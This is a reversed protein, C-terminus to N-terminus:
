NTLVPHTNHNSDFPFANDDYRYIGELYEDPLDNDSIEKGYNKNNKIFDKLKMKRDERINKNHLDTTLMIISFSLLYAGDSAKKEDTSFLKLSGTSSEQCHRAISESFAQLIRDIMQAEGPLRFTALFMRLGDLVTLHEFSFSSCFETLLEKHFSTQDWVVANKDSKGLEGLYQGVAAKDLGVVLGNRLFSAVSKADPPNTPLMGNEALYQLGKKSKENFLRAAHHLCRKKNKATRLHSSSSQQQEAGDEAAPNKSAEGVPSLSEAGHFLRKLSGLLAEFCLEKLHDPVSRHRAILMPQASKESDNSPTPAGSTGSRSTPMSASSMPLYPEGDEDVMGGCCRSLEGLLGSAVDSETMSCDYSRFLSEMTSTSESSSLCLIDVLSELIVEVEMDFIMNAQYAVGDTPLPRRRLLSLARQYFGCFISEFQSRLRLRLRPLSWLLSLTACVESLLGISTSAPGGGLMDAGTSASSASASGSPMIDHHSWIAQGITLLALCLDDEILRLLVQDDHQSGGTSAMMACGPGWGTRLCCQLLRLCLTRGDEGGDMMAADWGADSDNDGDAGGGGGGAAGRRLSLSDILFELIKRAAGVHRSSMMGSRHKLSSKQQADEGGFVCFVMHMLVQEFHFSLAPSHHGGGDRVFTHRTIFVAHFAEMLISSPLRQIRLKTGSTTTTAKNSNSLNSSNSTNSNSVASQTSNASVTSSSSKQSKLQQQQQAQQQRKLYVTRVLAAEAARAGAADLEVLLKLLDAIAMEVAEDAGADTQEFRCALVGRAIPELTTEFAFLSSSETTNNNNNIGNNTNSKTEGSRSTTATGGGPVFASRTVQVISGRELLRHLARLAILTHPGAARPDVIVALFPTAYPGPDLITQQQQQNNPQSPLQLQVQPHHHSLDPTFPMSPNSSNFIPPPPALSLSGGTTTATATSPDPSSPPVSHPTPPSLHIPSSPPTSLLHHNEEETKGPGEGSIQNKADADAEKANTDNKTNEEDANADPVAPLPPPPLDSKFQVQSSSISNGDGRTPSPPPPVRITPLAVDAATAPESGAVDEDERPTKVVVASATASHSNTSTAHDHYDGVGVVSEGSGVGGGVSSSNSNTTTSDLFRGRVFSRLDRLGLALDGRAM